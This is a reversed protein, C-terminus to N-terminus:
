QAPPHSSPVDWHQNQESHAILGAQSVVMRWREWWGRQGLWMGQGSLLLLREAEGGGFPLFDVLRGGLALGAGDTEEGVAACVSELRASQICKRRSRVGCRGCCGGGRGTASLSRFDGLALAALFSVGLFDFAVLFTVAAFPSFPVGAGLFFPALATWAAAHPHFTRNPPAICESIRNTLSLAPPTSCNHQPPTARGPSPQTQTTPHRAQLPHRGRSAAPSSQMEILKPSTIRRRTQQCGFGLLTCM